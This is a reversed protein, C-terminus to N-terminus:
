RNDVHRTLNSFTKGDSTMIYNRQKKYLPMVDKGDNYILFLYIEDRFTEWDKMTLEWNESNSDVVNYSNGLITNCEEKAGGLYKRLIFM